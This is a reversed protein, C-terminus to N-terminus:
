FEKVHPEIKIPKDAWAANMVIRTMMNKEYIVVGEVKLHTM